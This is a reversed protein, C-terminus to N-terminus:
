FESAWNSVKCFFLSSPRPSFSERWGKSSLWRSKQVPVWHLERIMTAVWLRPFRCVVGTKEQSISANEQSCRQGLQWLPRGSGQSHVELSPSKSTLENRPWKAGHGYKVEEDTWQWFVSSIQIIQQYVGELGILVPYICSYLLWVNLSYIKKESKIPNVM